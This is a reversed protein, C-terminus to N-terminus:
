NTVSFNHFQGEFSYIWDNKETIRYRRLKHSIGYQVFYSHLTTVSEFLPSQKVFHNWSFRKKQYGIICCLALWDRSHDATSEVLGAHFSLCLAAPPLSLSEFSSEPFALFHIKPIPFITSFSFNYITDLIQINLHHSMMTVFITYWLFYTELIRFFFSNCM